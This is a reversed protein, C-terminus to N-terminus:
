CSWELIGEVMEYLVGILLVVLVGVFGLISGVDWVFGDLGLWFVSPVLLVTEFDFVVFVVMLGFFRLSFGVRSSGFPDFGCEYPSSLDYLCGSYFGFVWSVLFVLVVIVLSCLSAIMM